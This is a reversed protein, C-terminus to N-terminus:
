QQAEEDQEYRALKVAMETQKIEADVIQLTKETNNEICKELVKETSELICLTDKLLKQLEQVIPLTELDVSPANWIPCGTKDCHESDCRCRNECYDAVDIIKQESM